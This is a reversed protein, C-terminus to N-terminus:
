GCNKVGILNTEMKKGKLLLSGLNKFKYHDLNDFQKYLDQSIILQQEFENCKSQIRATTNIVDGHYAIEKKITGVEAVMLKGAHIGAKFEPIINYNSKYYESKYELSQIFAFFMKLCNNNQIGNQFNWIIVAEDGVYQFIEANHKRLLANLDSFCDQILKSYKLHGLEEAISTSSKLDIFMFVRYEEKPQRYKGILINYFNKHGLRQTAINIFSLGMSVVSAYLLAAWFLKTSFWWNLYALIDLNDNDNDVQFGFIIITLTFIIIFLISELVFMVWMPLNAFIKREFYYNIFSYLVGFLVGFFISHKINVIMSFDNDFNAYTVLEESIGYYRFVTYLVMAIIWFLLSIFLKNLYKRVERM